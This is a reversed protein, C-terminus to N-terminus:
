ARLGALAVCPEGPKASCRRSGSPTGASPDAVDVSLAGADLLADRGADAAGADLM